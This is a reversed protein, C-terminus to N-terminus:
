GDGHAARVSEWIEDLSMWIDLSKYEPLCSRHIIVSMVGILPLHKIHDKFYENGGRVVSRADDDLM